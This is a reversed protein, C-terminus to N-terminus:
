RRKKFLFWKCNPFIEIPDYWESLYEVTDSTLKEPNTEISTWSNDHFSVVLQDAVPHKVSTLLQYEAGEVNMKLISLPACEAIVSSLPVSEISFSQDFGDFRKTSSSNFGNSPGKYMTIKGGLPTVAKKVLTAWPPCSNEFPDFGIVRKRNAFLISWDWTLCGIDVVSGEHAFVRDDYQLFGHGVIGM